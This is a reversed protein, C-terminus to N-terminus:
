SDGGARMGLIERAKEADPATLRYTGFQVKRGDMDKTGKRQCPIALGFHRRIRMVEDPGNSAGAISDIEERSRQIVLLALLIRRARATLLLAQQRQNCSKAPRIVISAGKGPAGVKDKPDHHANKM